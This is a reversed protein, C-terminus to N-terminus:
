SFILNTRDYMHHQFNKDPFPERASLPKNFEQNESLLCSGIPLSTGVTWSVTMWLILEHKHRRPEEQLHICLNRDKCGFLPHALLCVFAQELARQAVLYALLCGTRGTFDLPRSGVFQLANVSLTNLAGCLKSKLALMARQLSSNDPFSNPSDFVTLALGRALRLALVDRILSGCFDEEEKSNRKERRPALRDSLLAQHYNKLCASEAVM